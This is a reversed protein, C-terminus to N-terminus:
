GSSGFGNSGRTTSSLSQVVTPTPTKICEIVLQAIRDGKKIPFDHDTHNYLIVQVVGTYDRDIVGAGVDIGKIALGSRPAIRGYTGCPVCFCIGTNVKGIGRAPLVVDEIGCIDYGAANESMRKPVQADPHVLQVQFDSDM